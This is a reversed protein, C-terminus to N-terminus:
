PCTPSARSPAGQPSLMSSRMGEPDNAGQASKPAVSLLAVSGISIALGVIQQTNTHPHFFIQNLALVVISNANAIAMGPASPGVSVTVKMLAIGVSQLVSSLLSLWVLRTSTTNRGGGWEANLRDLGKFCAGTAVTEVIFFGFGVAGMALWVLGVSTPHDVFTRLSAYKILFNGAAFCVAGVLGYAIGRLGALFYLSRLTATRLLMRHTTPLSYCAILLLCHTAHSSYHATLLMRHTTPLSYCAILLPCRTAHSSYHATLLM